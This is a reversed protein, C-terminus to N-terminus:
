VQLLSCELPCLAMELHIFCQRLSSSSWKATHFWTPSSSGAHLLTLCSPKLETCVAKRLSSHAFM